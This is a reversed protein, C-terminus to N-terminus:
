LGVEELADEIESLLDATRFPKQLVRFGALPLTEKARPAGSIIIVGLGRQRAHRALVVGVEDPMLYDVIVLRFGGRDLAQYGAEASAARVASYGAESLVEALVETIAPDDDVVLIRKGSM